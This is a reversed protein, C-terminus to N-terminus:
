ILRRGVFEVCRAQCATAFTMMAPNNEIAPDIDLADITEM